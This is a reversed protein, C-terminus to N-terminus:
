SVYRRLVRRWKTCRLPMTHARMKKDKSEDNCNRGKWIRDVKGIVLDTRSKSAAGKSHWGSHILPIGPATWDETAVDEQSIAFLGGFKAGAALV